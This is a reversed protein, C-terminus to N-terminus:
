SSFAKGGTEPIFPIDPVTKTGTELSEFKKDKLIKEELWKGDDRSPDLIHCNVSKFCDNVRALLDERKEAQKLSWFKLWCKLQEVTCNAPKSECRYSPIDDNETLVTAKASLSVKMGRMNYIYIYNRMNRVHLLQQKDSDQPSRFTSSTV